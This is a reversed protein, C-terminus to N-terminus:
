APEAEAEHKQLRAAFIPRLLFVVPSILLATNMAYYYFPNLVPSTLPGLIFLPVFIYLLIMKILSRERHIRAFEYGVWYSIVTLFIFAGVIGFDHIPERLGTAWIETFRNEETLNKAMIERENYYDDWSIIRFLRYVWVFHIIGKHNPDYDRLYNEVYSLGQAFYTVTSLYATTVTDPSKELMDQLWPKYEIDFSTSFHLLVDAKQQRAYTLAAAFVLISVAVLAFRRIYYGLSPHRLTFSTLLVLLGQILPWRGSTLITYLFCIGIAYVTLFWRERRSFYSEFIFPAPIGLLCIGGMRGILILAGGEIAGSYHADRLENFGGGMLIPLNTKLICLACVTSMALVSYTFLKVLVPSELTGETSIPKNSGRTHGIWNALYMCSFFLIALAMTDPSLDDKYIIGSGGYSVFAAGLIMGFWARPANLVMRRSLALWATTAWYILGVIVSIIEIETM